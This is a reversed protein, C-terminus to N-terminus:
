SGPVFGVLDTVEITLDASVTGTEPDSAGISFESVFGEFEANASNAMGDAFVIKFDDLDSYADAATELLRDRLAIHEDNNPDYWVKCKLQGFDVLGPRKAVSRSTLHTPNRVSRKFGDWSLDTAGPIDAYAADIKIQLTTGSAPIDQYSM